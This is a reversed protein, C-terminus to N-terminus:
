CLVTHYRPNTTYCAYYNGLTSRTQHGDFKTYYRRILDDIHYNSLTVVICTSSLSSKGAINKAQYINLQELSRTM